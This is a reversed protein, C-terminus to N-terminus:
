QESPAVAPSVGFATLELLNNENINWDLRAMLKYGPTKVSYGAYRGPDYGYTDILHNRLAENQRMILAMEQEKATLFARGSHGPNTFTM